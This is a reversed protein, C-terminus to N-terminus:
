HRKVREILMDIMADVYNFIFFHKGPFQFCEVEAETHDKWAQAEERTVSEETGTIVVLPIDFSPAPEFVYTDVAQFDARIIPEFYNLLSEDELIEDPSGGYSKLKSIFEDKPLLYRKENRIFSRGPSGCGTLFLLLPARLNATRIRNTVLYALLTGMSHGYIIYPMQFGRKMQNFLDEVMSHIDTLLPERFRSGRGPLDLPIVNFNVSAKKVFEPYSYKSGGAFPLCFLNIKQM